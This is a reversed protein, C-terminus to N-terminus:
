LPREAPTRAASGSDRLLIIAFQEDEANGMSGAQFYLAMMEHVGGSEAKERTDAIRYEYYWEGIGPIALVTNIVGRDETHLIMRGVYVMEALLLSLVLLFKVNM